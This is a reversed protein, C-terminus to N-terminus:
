VESPETMLETPEKQTITLKRYRQLRHFPRDHKFELPETVEYEVITLKIKLAVKEM